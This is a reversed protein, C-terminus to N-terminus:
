YFPIKRSFYNLSTFNYSITLNNSLLIFIIKIKKDGDNVTSTKFFIFRIVSNFIKV